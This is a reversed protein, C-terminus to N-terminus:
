SDFRRPRFLGSPDQSFKQLFHPAPLNFLRTMLSEIGHDPATSEPNEATISDVVLQELRSQPKVSAQRHKPIRYATRNRPQRPRTQKLGQASRRIQFTDGRFRSNVSPAFRRAV